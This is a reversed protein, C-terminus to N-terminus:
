RNSSTKRRMCTKKLMQKLWMGAEIEVDIDALYEKIRTKFEVTKNRLEDNSLSKLKEYEANIEEILPQLAKRERDNKNGFLSGFFKEIFNAM